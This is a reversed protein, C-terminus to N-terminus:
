DIPDLTIQYFLTAPEGDRIARRAIESYRAKGGAALDLIGRADHGFANTRTGSYLLDNDTSHWTTAGDAVLAALFEGCDALTNFNQTLVATYIEDARSLAVVADAVAAVDVLQEFVHPYADIGQGRCFSGFNFSAHVSWLGSRRDAAIHHVLILDDYAIRYVIPGSQEPPAETFLPTEAGSAGPSDLPEMPNDTSECGAVLAAAALTAILFGASPIRSYM